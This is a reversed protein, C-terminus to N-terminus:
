EEDEETILQASAEIPVVVPTEKSETSTTISALIDTLTQELATEAQQSIVNVMQASQQAILQSLEAEISSSQAFSSSTFMLGTVGLLTIVSHRIASTKM